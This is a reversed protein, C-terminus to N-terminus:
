NKGGGKEGRHSFLSDKYLLLKRKGMQKKKQLEAFLWNKKERASLLAGINKPQARKSGGLKSGTAWIAGKEERRILSVTATYASAGEKKGGTSKKQGPGKRRKPPRLEEGRATPQATSANRKKKGNGM